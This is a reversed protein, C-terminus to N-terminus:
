LLGDRLTKMPLYLTQANASFPAFQFKEYFAKAREDLAHVLLARAGIIQAARLSRKIADSLLAGGLGQGAENKDVALRALVIVPVPDPSNQRLSRPADIHHVAGAALAFYAVVKKAGRCVVYTRATDTKSAKWAWKRLWDNLAPRDCDFLTLDHIQKLPAPSALRARRQELGTVAGM